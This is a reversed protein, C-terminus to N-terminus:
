LKPGVQPSADEGSTPEPGSHTGRVTTDLCLVWMIIELQTGLSKV